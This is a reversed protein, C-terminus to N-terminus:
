SKGFALVKRSGRFDIFFGQNKYTKKNKECTAGSPLFDELFGGLLNGPLRWSTSFCRWSGGLVSWSAGLVGGLRLESAKLPVWSANWARGLRVLVAGSVGFGEFM